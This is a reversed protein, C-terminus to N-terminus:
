FHFDIGIGFVRNTRTFDDTGTGNYSIKKYTTYYSWLYALNIDLKDTAHIAVGAGLTLADNNFSLDSMYADGLGYDAYQAGVSATLWKLADYEVGFLYESSGRKLGRQKGGMDADKDFYYHYGASIRLKSLIDYSAGVTLLAPIDNPTKVGDDFTAVGSTNKATKNKVDINTQFEYKVGVNLKGYNFDFGIIPALGFGSQECDIEMDATQAAVGQAMDAKQNFAGQAQNVTLAGAATADMGLGGAMQDLQAQPLQGAAVLTALTFSGAGADVATQLSTAAGKAQAAANTFYSNLNVLSGGGLNAQIDRIYGEYGNKVISARAGIFVSLYDNIKYSAGLQVGYIIQSGELRSELAYQTAPIGNSSLLAPIMAVQSEFSPLGKSFTATGGGGVIAFSGSFVWKNSKYAAQLSPIFPARAKGVYEKTANGGNAAFPAFTSTIIRTQFASQNNLSLTLGDNKLFSLGAPNSYVADIETSADRAPNRLFHVNQNTNTLLGGAWINWTTCLSLGIVFIKKSM